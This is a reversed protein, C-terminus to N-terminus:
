KITKMTQELKKDLVEVKANKRLDLMIQRSKQRVLRGMIQGKLEEFTPAKTMRKDELKILHWGFSSKVPESIEGPSLAFAAAEFNKDMQGRSFYGLDGGSRGSPGQSKEKALAIFEDGRNLREVLDLADEEKKVLIHRARIEEVSKFNKIELDYMERLDKDGISGRVSREFYTDRMAQNRAYHARRQFTKEKDLGAREGAMAMLRTDIVYRLLLGPRMEPSVQVLEEEIENEALAIEWEYVPQGNVQAVIKGELAGAATPMFFVVLGLFLARAAAFDFISRM